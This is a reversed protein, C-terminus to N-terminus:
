FGSSSLCLLRQSPLTLMTAIDMPSVQTYDQVEDVYLKTRRLKLQTEDSKLLARLISAVRDTDDWLGRQEVTKQYVEFANYALERQAPALRCQKVGLKLYEERTLPQGTHVAEISGKIFSRIQTWVVLPDLKCEEDFLNDFPTNDKEDTNDKADKNGKKDEKGKFRYYHVRRDHDFTTPIDLEKECESLLKNYTMYELLSSSEMDEGVAEKVYDCIGKASSLAFFYVTSFNPVVFVLALLVISLLLSYCVAPSSYNHFTPSLVASIATM